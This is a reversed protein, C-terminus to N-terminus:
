SVLLAVALTLALFWFVLGARFACAGRVGEACKHKSAREYRVGSAGQEKGKEVVEGRSGERGEM